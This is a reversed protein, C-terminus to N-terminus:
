VQGDDALVFGCCDCVIAANGREGTWHLRPTDCCREGSPVTLLWHYAAVADHLIKTIPERRREKLDSMRVMDAKTIRSAPWQYGKLLTQPDIPEEVLRTQWSRAVSLCNSRGVFAEEGFDCM